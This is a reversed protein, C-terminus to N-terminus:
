NSRSVSVHPLDDTPHQTGYNIACMALAIGFAFGLINMRHLM